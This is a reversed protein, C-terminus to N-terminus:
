ELWTKGLVVEIWKEIESWVRPSLVDNHGADPVMMLQKPGNLADYVRQSHISRTNADSRGHIVLVPVPIQAAALLPSAADVAFGGDRETREFAAAIARSSFFSPAREIAISRLDAFTSAAVVARVRPEGAAAQLAVAAGLSHGILVADTVGAQDMVRQLDQKEFVGYTCRQGTSAGHARSDYAIVDFGRRVFRDVVGTASGRNDAIGHLYIITGRRPATAACRWGRLEVGVGAFTQEVCGHPMPRSITTRAPYLLAGAGFVPLQSEVLAVAGALILTVAGFGVAIRTSENM